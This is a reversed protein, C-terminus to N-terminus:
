KSKPGFTKDYWGGYYKAYNQGSTSTIEGEGFISGIKQTATQFDGNKLYEAYIQEYKAHNATNGAIGIDIKANSQIEKRVQLNKLTAAGEDALAGSLYQSKNSYDPTYPYMAHGVEHALVQVMQTPSKALNADLRIIKSQRNASSGGGAS